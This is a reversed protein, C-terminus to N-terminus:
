TSDSEGISLVLRLDIAALLQTRKKDGFYQLYAGSVQFWREQWGGFSGSAKKKLKGELLPVESEPPFIDIASRRYGRRKM